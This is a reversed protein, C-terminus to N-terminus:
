KSKSLTIKCASVEIDKEVCYKDLSVNNFKISNHIFICVGGNKFATRCYRDGLDYNDILINNIEYEKLHHETLCIIHPPNFQLSCLLEQTKGALGRINQHYVKLLNSANVTMGSNKNVSKVHNIKLNLGEEDQEKSGINTVPKCLSSVDVM